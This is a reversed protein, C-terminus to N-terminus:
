ASPSAKAGNNPPCSPSSGTARTAHPASGPACGSLSRRGLAHPAQCRAYVDVLGLSGPDLLSWWPLGPGPPQTQLAAKVEVAPLYWSGQGGDTGVVLGSAMDPGSSIFQFNSGANALSSAAQGVTAIAVPECGNGGELCDVGPAAALPCAGVQCTPLYAADGLGLAYVGPRLPSFQDYNAAPAFGAFPSMQNLQDAMWIFDSWELRQQGNVAFWAAEPMGPHTTVGAALPALAMDQIGDMRTLVRWEAPESLKVDWLAGASPAQHSSWDAVLLHSTLKPLAQIGTSFRVALTRPDTLAVPLRELVPAAGPWAWSTGTTVPRPLIATYLGPAMSACPLNTKNKIQPAGVTAYMRRGVLAIDTVCSGLLAVQAGSQFKIPVAIQSAFLSKTPPAGALLSLNEPAVLVGTGTAAMILFGAGSLLRVRDTGRVHSKGPDWRASNVSAGLGGENTAIWAPYVTASVGPSPQTPSFDFRVLSLYDQPTVAIGNGVAWVRSPDSSSSTSAPLSRTETPSAAVLVPKLNFYTGGGSALGSTTAAKDVLLGSDDDEAGLLISPLQGGVKTTAPLITATMSGQATHGRSSTRPRHAWKNATNFGATICAASTDDPEDTLSTWGLCCPEAVAGPVITAAPSCVASPGACAVTAKVVAQSSPEGPPLSSVWAPIVACQPQTNEPKACQQMLTGPQTKCDLTVALPGIGPVDCTNIVARDKECETCAALDVSLLNCGKRWPEYVGMSTNPPIQCSACTLLTPNKSLKGVDCEREPPGAHPARELPSLVFASAAGSGKNAGPTSVASVMVVHPNGPSVSLDAAWLFVRGPEHPAQPDEISTALHWSHGRDLSRWLGTMQMCVKQNSSDGTMYPIEPTHKEAFGWAYLMRDDASPVAAATYRM